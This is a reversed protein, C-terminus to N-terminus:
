YLEKYVSKIKYGGKKEKIRKVIDLLSYTQGRGKYDAEIRYCDSSTSLIGAPLVVDDFGPMKNRYWDTHQLFDRHFEDSRYQVVSEAFERAEDKPADFAMARIVEKPATNINIKGTNCYVSVFDFLGPAKRTGILLKKSLTKILFLEGLNDIPMNKVGAAFLKNTDMGLDKLKISYKDEVGKSDIWYWISLIIKYAEEKNLGFPKNTLLSLLVKRYIEGNKKDAIFNIPIKGCEDEVRVDLDKFYDRNYGALQNIQDKNNWIDFMTDYNNNHKDQILLAKEFNDAGVLRHYSDISSDLIAVYANEIEVNRLSLMVMGSLIAILLLVVILIIGDKGKVM